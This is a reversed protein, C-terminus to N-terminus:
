DRRAICGRSIMVVSSVILHHNYGGIQSLAATALHPLSSLMAADAVVLV